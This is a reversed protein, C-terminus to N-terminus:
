LFSAFIVRIFRDIVSKAIRVRKVRNTEAGEFAQVFRSTVLPAVESPEVSM